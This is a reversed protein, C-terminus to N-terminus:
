PFQQPTELSAIRCWTARRNGRHDPLCRVEDTTWRHPIAPQKKEDVVVTRMDELSPDPPVMGQFPLEYEECQGIILCAPFLPPPPLLPSSSLSFHSLCFFLPTPPLMSSYLQDLSLLDIAALVVCFFYNKGSLWNLPQYYKVTSAHISPHRKM